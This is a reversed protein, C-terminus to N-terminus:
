LGATAGNGHEAAARDRCYENSSNMVMDLGRSALAGRVEALSVGGFNRRYLLAWQSTRTLAGITNIGAALIAREPRTRLGLASIPQKLIDSSINPSPKEAAQLITDRRACEDWLLQVGLGNRGSVLETAVLMQALERTPLEHINM